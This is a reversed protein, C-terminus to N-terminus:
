WAAETGTQGALVELISHLHFLRNNKFQRELYELNADSNEVQRSYRYAAAILDERTVAGSNGYRFLCWERIVQCGFIMHKVKGYVDGDYVAGLLFTYIFYLALNEWEQEWQMCEQRFSRELDLYEATKREHYLSTCVRDQKQQWYPLVPEMQQTLRMWAAMRVMRKTGENQYPRMQECFRAPADRSLYRKSLWRVWRRRREGSQPYDLRRIRESHCQFDHALALVMAMRQNWGVARNKILNTMVQRLEQLDQLFAKEAVANTPKGERYQERWAGQFEDELILRAAEPCSLSLMIEQIEGYDERHRPYDRCGSCLGQRGMKKYIDCMGERNYFACTRGHLRFSRNKHDIERYLRRGWEGSQQRYNKYSNGDIAIRWDKCCTDQCEAGLCVFKDYYVPVRYKM